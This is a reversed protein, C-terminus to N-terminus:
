ISWPVAGFTEMLFFQAIPYGYSAVLYVIILGVWFGFSNMLHPMRAISHVPEAYEVEPVAVAVQNGHTRYLNYVLMLASILLIVGGVIMAMEPIIWKEVLEADYPTSSIRRPQGDLGLQHWPLTLVLMGIFWLWLQKLAMGNSHLEKGTMKPWLYYAIAFYMIVTTGGFILHFHGTVWQTNHIMVNMSYSANIVGGFGGFTLMLMALGTALVMPNNWPLKGIWGFLGKGGRLRGAIEMSAIITFGTILTPVAVLMTGTMHLFKWGAAQFPDMYLHHFGIPVSIVLLMIFALRGMQDSLLKGGAQKPMLTYFAIYAPFLWFYVIAHLTWSFLTRALGVDILGLSWPLLQFLVEAAVGLSTFLWMIANATTGYMALPITEGPNAKKWKMTSMIMELCWVWSGVVLLVAGIYFTPHAVLPPYFTFLVFANGTLLPAAAMLVGIVALYFGFWALPKNWLPQKLSTTATYYGYGMILFTTLVFGMLVGHTSVSGFYLEPSKLAPVLDIREVVQYVGLLVAAAFAIFGVWMNALALGPAKYDNM